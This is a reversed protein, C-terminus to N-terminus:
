ELKVRIGEKKIREAFRFNELQIIDADRNIGRSIFAMATFFYEDKLGLFGIDVDSNESFEYPKTISGFIYAEKFPVELHLKGVIHHLKKLLNLRLKELEEKERDVAEDLLYTSFGENLKKVAMNSVKNRTTVKM